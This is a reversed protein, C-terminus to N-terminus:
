KGICISSCNYINKTVFFSHSARIFSDNFYSNGGIEINDAILSFSDNDGSIFIDRATFDCSDNDGLIYIDEITDVNLCTNDGDVLLNVCCMYNQFLTNGSVYINGDSLITRNSNLSGSIYIDGSIYLIGNSLDTEVELYGASINGDISITSCNSSIILMGSVILSHGNEVILNETIELDGSFIYDEDTIVLTEISRREM